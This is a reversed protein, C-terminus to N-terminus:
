SAAFNAILPCFLGGAYTGTRRRVFTPFPAATSKRSKSPFPM